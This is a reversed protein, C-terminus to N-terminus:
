ALTTLNSALPFLNIIFKYIITLNPLILCHLTRRLAFFGDLLDILERLHEPESIERQRPPIFGYYKLIRVVFQSLIWIEFVSHILVNLDVNYPKM